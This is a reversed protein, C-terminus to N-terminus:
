KITPVLGKESPKYSIFQKFGLGLFYVDLPVGQEEFEKLTSILKQGLKYRKIQESNTLYLNFDYEKIPRMTDLNLPINYAKYEHELRKIKDLDIEFMNCRKSYSIKENFTAPYQALFETKFYESVNSIFAEKDNIYIWNGCYESLEKFASIKAELKRKHEIRAHTNVGIQLKNM